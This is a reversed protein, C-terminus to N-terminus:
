VVSRTNCSYTLQSWCTFFNMSAYVRQKPASHAAGGPQKCLLQRLKESSGKSMYKYLVASGLRVCRGPRCADRLSCQESFGHGVSAWAAWGVEDNRSDLERTMGDADHILYALAQCGTWTRHAEAVTATTGSAARVDSFWGKRDQAKRARRASATDNSLQEWRGRGLRLVRAM